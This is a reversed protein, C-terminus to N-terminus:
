VELKAIADALAGRAVDLKQRAEAEAKRLVDLRDEQGKMQELYRKALDSGSPVSSLNQRIRGQDAAIREREGTVERVQGDFREVEGQLAAVQELAKRVPEAIEGNRAYTLLAQRSQGAITVQELQIRHTTVEAVNTGAKLPGFRLRYFGGTLEADAPKPVVLDWGQVRPHEVVIMRGDEAPIKFRYLDTQEERHSLTMVGRAIKAQVIGVRRKSERDAQVKYDVAHSLLRKDGAPLLGLRADGIYATGVGREYLTMIGPPLGFGTNNTLRLAALPNPGHVQPQYLAVREVPVTRNVIPLMLTDGSRVSVPDPATFLVQTAGEQAEGAAAAAFQQPEQRMVEGLIPAQAATSQRARTASGMAMGGTAPSALLAGADAPPAIRALVDIPVEPRQVFYANYLQQRFTVPNGSALTLAVNKWDHGSLNELVAWGQLLGEGEVRDAPVSLRYSSKWLPTAVVYGVRLLRKGEGQASVTLVRQDQLRHRALAALATDVQRQLMADSFQVSDADELVFQSMGDASVLTVRHKVTEGGGDPLRVNEAVVRLIRGKIQRGGSVTVDAGTLANLLKDYSELASQNFPLDKFTQSLPERGPLTIQGVAGKDDFVVISKLVDDVQDLRVPLSLEAKGDVAVEFEFYGVGGLSLLVRKLELAPAQAVAVASVLCAAFTLLLVRIAQM